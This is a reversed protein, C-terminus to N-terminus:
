SAACSRTQPRFVKLVQPAPLSLTPAVPCRLARQEREIAAYYEAVPQAPAPSPPTSQDKFFDEWHGLIVHQPLLNRVITPADQHEVLNWTGVCLLALDVARERILDDPVKGLV